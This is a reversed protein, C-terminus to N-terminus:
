CTSFNVRAVVLGTAPSTPTGTKPVSKWIPQANAMPMANAIMVQAETEPPWKLGAMVIAKAM